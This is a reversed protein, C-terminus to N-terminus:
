AAPMDQLASYVLSLRSRASELLAEPNLDGSDLMALGM